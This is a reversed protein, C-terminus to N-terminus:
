QGDIGQGRRKSRRRTIMVGEVLVWTLALGGLALVYPSIGAPLIGTESPTAAAAVPQIGPQVGPQVAAPAAQASTTAKGSTSLGGPHGAAALAPALETESSLKKLAEKGSADLTAVYIDFNGNRPSSFL